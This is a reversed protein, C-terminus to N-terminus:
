HGFVDSDFTEGDGKDLSSLRAVDAPALEFDFIDLNQRVREVSASKPLPTLGLQLHWRLVVQAPTRRYAHAIDVIPVEELLGDGRGLPGWSQTAIGHASNYARAEDRTLAPNLHIQNVDPRRGTESYLREIHAPKFNSVGISRALGEENLRILGRWADIYRGQSPLPWHIMYLDLYDLGLRELSDRCAAQAEAFGHWEGNLKSEVFLESRPVGSARVGKGVGIENGYAYATDILRYGSRIGAAVVAEAAEDDLDGTGLGIVPMEVGNALVRYRLRSEDSM